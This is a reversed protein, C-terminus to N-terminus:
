MSFHNKIRKVIADKSFGFHEAVKEGPASTGFTHMDIALGDSGIWKYWLEGQATEIVAKRASTPLVEDRYSKDQQKFVELCPISVVRVSKGQSEWEAAAAVTVGVESGTSVLILDLNSDKGEKLIYGGKLISKPDFSSDRNLADLNQRSLMLATPGKKHTLAMTWAAATEMSDAPRIVHLNPILRLSPIQEVPQHTPGDEGVHISDHTFIFLSQINSLAAVRISPRMYDSFVLFTSGFPIWCGYLAMGNVIAGMAHERIGFHINRANFNKASVDGGDKITTKCSSALDASGGVLSPVLKAVTQEITNSIVRTANPMAPLNKLLQDYLDSPVETSWMKEWEKSLEPNAKSWTAFTKEWEKQKTSVQAMKTRFHETVSAPVHFAESENWQINSKTKTIEDAGLPAGHSSAKGAKNPSGKAIQTKAVILSPRASEAIAKKMADRIQAHDHGDITQVFWGYAKYREAVNETFALDTSGDISIKNDDYVYILNSLQLHGAISSAESSIGEMLDGDSVLSIVNHDIVKHEATNFKAAMMKAALAMGVVNASGQGLPGTTAEVGETHGYEPHGPTKSGMQRFNEIEKMPLNFGSLHLLAYQWMSGHGASLVFRDRNKWNPHQPTINLFETWLIYGIDACGMPMGPHGSNAKEVADMALTKITNVCLQDINEHSM